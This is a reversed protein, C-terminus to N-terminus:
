TVSRCSMSPASATWLRDPARHAHRVAHGLRRRPEPPHRRTRPVGLDRVIADGIVTSRLHGVHMEKAVNPASYDVVVKEVVPDAAIGLREDGAMEAILSGIADNRLTLNLFGPGAIEITALDDIAAHAVVEAAM